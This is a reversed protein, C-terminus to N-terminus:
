RLGTHTRRNAKCLSGVRTGSARPAQAPHPGTMEGRFVVDAEDGRGPASKRSAGAAHITSWSDRGTSGRPCKPFGREYDSRSREAPFVTGCFRGAQPSRTEQRTRGQKQLKLVSTKLPLRSVGRRRACTRRSALIDWLKRPCTIRRHLHLTGRPSKEDPHPTVTGGKPAETRATPGPGGCRLRQSTQSGPCSSRDSPPPSESLLPRPPRLAPSLAPAEGLVTSALLPGDRSSAANNKVRKRVLVRKRKSLLSQGQPSPAARKRANSQEGKRATPSKTFTWPAETVAQPASTVTGPPPARLALKSASTM